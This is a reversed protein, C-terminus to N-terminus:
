NSNKNQAKGSGKKSHQEIKHSLLEFNVLIGQNIQNGIDKRAGITASAALGTTTGHSLCKGLLTVHVSQFTGSSTIGHRLLHCGDQSTYGLCGLRLHRHDTATRAMHAVLRDRVVVTQLVTSKRVTEVRALITARKATQTQTTTDLRTLKSGNRHIRFFVSGNDVLLFARSTASAGLSTRAAHNFQAVLSTLVATDIHTADVLFFTCLGALGAVVGANATAFTGLNTRKLGNLDLVVHGIDIEVLALRTALTHGLTGCASDLSDVEGGRGGLRGRSGRFSWRGIWLDLAYCIPM